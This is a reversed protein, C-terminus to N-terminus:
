ATGTWDMAITSAGAPEIRARWRWVWRNFEGLQCLHLAGVPTAGSNVSGPMPFSALLAGSRADYSNLAPPLLAGATGSFVVRDAMTTPAVSYNLLIVRAGTAGEGMDRFPGQVALAYPGSFRCISSERSWTIAGFCPTVYESGPLYHSLRVSATAAV